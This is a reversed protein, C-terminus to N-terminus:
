LRELYCLMHRLVQMVPLNLYVLVPVCYITQIQYRNDELLQLLPRSIDPSTAQFHNFHHPIVSIRFYDSFILPHLSAPLYSNWFELLTHEQQEILPDIQRTQQKLLSSFSCFFIFLVIELM